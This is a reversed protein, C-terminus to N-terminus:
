LDGRLLDKFAKQLPSRQTWHHLIFRPSAADKIFLSTATNMRHFGFDTPIPGEQRSYQQMLILKSGGLLSARTKILVAVM